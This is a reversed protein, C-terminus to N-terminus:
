PHPRVYDDLTANPGLTVHREAACGAHVTAKGVRATVQLTRLAARIAEV